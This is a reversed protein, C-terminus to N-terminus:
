DVLFELLEVPLGGAGDMRCQVENKVDGHYDRQEFRVIILQDGEYTPDGTASWTCAEKLGDNPACDGSDPVVPGQTFVLFPGSMKHGTSTVDMSLTHDGTVYPDGCVITCEEPTEQGYAIQALVLAALVGCTIAIIILTTRSIPSNNM